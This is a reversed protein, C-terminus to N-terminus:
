LRLCMRFTLSVLIEYFLKFNEKVVKLQLVSLPFTGEIEDSGSFKISCEIVGILKGEAHPRMEGLEPVHQKM